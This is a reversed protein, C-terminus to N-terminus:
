PVKSADFLCARKFMFFEMFLDQCVGLRTVMKGIFNKELDYKDEQGHEIIRRLEEQYCKEHLSALLLERGSFEALTNQKVAM